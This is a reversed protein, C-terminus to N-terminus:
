KVGTKLAEKKQDLGKILEDYSAAFLKLGDVELQLTIDDMSIGAAALNDIDKQAASLDGPLTQGVHAHDRAAEITALPLTNVTEAGVLAEVYIVDRYAPNKTSTSAWLPRQIIAGKAALAKFRASNKMKLFMGYALQANAIAAKGKLGEGGAASPGRGEPLPHGSAPHPIKDLLGDILTDVRSVFFSAVSSVESLPKIEKAALRELGALWADIVEQYRQLSFILTININIGEGLAQEIAGLGEKTGPIKIMVNPRNVAAFLRRAEALTSQTDRAFHPNVELSVFGDQGKTKEFVPRFQDCGHQIDEISIADFIQDSTKGERILRSIMEDYEKGGTIAKQFITPNSTVGSVGDESILKSLKGDAMFQRTIFDLWISQGANRIEQLHNM